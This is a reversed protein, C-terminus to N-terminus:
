PEAEQAAGAARKPMRTWARKKQYVAPRVYRYEHSLFTLSESHGVMLYGGDKLLAWFRRVLKEQTPKDFYIMVNRCFIVDFPGSMPWEEMLNLKAFYVLSGILPRVRYRRSPKAQICEFYKQCLQAPLLKVMDQDYVGARARELMRDSIDTGLIRIDRKDPDPLAERVTMAISYPEEGSSCGASWIRLPSEGIGPLVISKLFDLHEQERFFHTKNTTLVDVMARIEQGSKDHDLYKLYKEFSHLKLHRLRKLLRAKVLEEKGQHLDIGSVRYVVESIHKFQRESLRLTFFDVSTDYGIGNELTMIKRIDDPQLGNKLARSPV